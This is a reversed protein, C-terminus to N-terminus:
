APPAGGTRAPDKAPPSAIQMKLPMKEEMILKASAKLLDNDCAARLRPAVPKPDTLATHITAKAAPKMAFAM